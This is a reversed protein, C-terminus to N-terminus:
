RVPPMATACPQLSASLADRANVGGPSPALDHRRRRLALACLSAVAGRYRWWGGLAREPPPSTAPGAAEPAPLTSQAATNVTCCRSALGLRWPVGRRIDFLVMAPLPRLALKGRGSGRCATAQSRCDRRKATEAAAYRGGSFRPCDRALGARVLAEAIDQGERYCLRGAPRPHAGADPRLRRDPGRGTRGHVGQGRHRRARWPRRLAGGRARGRGEAAIRRPSPYAMRVPAWLALWVGLM